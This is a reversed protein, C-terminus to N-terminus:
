VQREFHPTDVLTKFNGGWRNKPNLSEWYAGVPALVAKDYTLEGNLFFNLDIATKKLHYSAMTKSKGEKVYIVQMAEPRQLEGGTIVFGKSIAFDILKCVDKLFEFQENVLSM